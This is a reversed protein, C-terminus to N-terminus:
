EFVAALVILILPLAFVMAGMYTGLKDRDMNM